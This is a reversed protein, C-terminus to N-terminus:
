TLSFMSISFVRVAAVGGSDFTHVHVVSNSDFLYSSQGGVLGGVTIQVVIGNPGSIPPNEMTLQYEGTGPTGISGTFGSQEIYTGNSNVTAAAVFTPFARLPDGATGDGLITYQDTTVPVQGAHLPDDTTGNGLITVNDTVVSITGGTARLPDETTGDGLITIQDASVLALVNNRTGGSVIATDTM